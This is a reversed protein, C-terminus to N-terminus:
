GQHAWRILGPLYKRKEAPSELWSAVRMGLVCEKDDKFVATYGLSQALLHKDEGTIWVSEAVLEGGHPLM